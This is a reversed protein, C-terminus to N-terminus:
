GDKILQVNPTVMEPAVGHTPTHAQDESGVGRVAQEGQDRPCCIGIMLEILRGIMIQVPPEACAHISEHLLPLAGEAGYRRSDPFSPQRLVSLRQSCGPDGQFPRVTKDIGQSVEVNGDQQVHRCLIIGVRELPSRVHEGIRGEHFQVSQVMGRCETAAAQDQRM